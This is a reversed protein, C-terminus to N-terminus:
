ANVATIKVSIQNEVPGANAQSVTNLQQFCQQIEQIIRNTEHYLAEMTGCRPDFPTDTSIM